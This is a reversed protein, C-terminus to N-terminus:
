SGPGMSEGMLYWSLWHRLWVTRLENLTIGGVYISDSHTSDMMRPSQVLSIRVCLKCVFCKGELLSLLLQGLDLGQPSPTGTCRLPPPSSCVPLSSILVLFISQAQGSYHCM